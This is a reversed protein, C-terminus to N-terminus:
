SAHEEEVGRKRIGGRREIGRFVFTMTIGLSSLLFMWIYGSMYDYRMPAYASALRPRVLTLKQTAAAEELRDYFRRSQALLGPQALAGTGIGAALRRGIADDVNPVAEREQLVSSSPLLTTVEITRAETGPDIRLHGGGNGGAAGLRLSRGIADLKRRPNGVEHFLSLFPNVIRTIPSVYTDTPTEVTAVRLTLATQHSFTFPPMGAGAPGFLGPARAGAVRLLAEEARRALAMAEAESGKRSGVSLAFAYGNERKVPRLDITEPLERRLDRAMAEVVEGEPRRGVPVEVLLADATAAERLAEGEELIRGALVRDVEGRFAECRAALTADIAGIEAALRDTEARRGAADAEIRGAKGLDGKGRLVAARDELMKRSALRESQTAALKKREEDLAASAKDRCRIEWTRGRDTFTGNAQWAEATIEAPPVPAGDSPRTWATGPARLSALLEPKTVEERLVVRTMEGAPPQFLTAYGWVFLGVGNLTLLGTLRGVMGAGAAYTGLKNRRVYDYVLPVYVMMMLLGVICGSEGFVIIEVLSPHKDPLVFNVYCYYCVNISLSIFILTQYAKMRNLKDAFLTLLGIIFINIVGGVAINIGLQQKTYSWQDTYLLNGLPGLGANLASISFVLLYIPRLEPDLLGRVFTRPTIREGRLPSKQDLEKVGLTILLFLVALLLAASWYIVREGFLPVGWMFRVDDFRGLAIFYFVIGALNQFWSMMGTARGREHPPIIELKLADLTANLDSSLSYFMYVALLAWFNPMLPMLVLATVIGTWSAIVFPKRRGFRTWIRDSTFSVLPYTVLSIFSPLSLIFTLGAPNEVFKKLSFLFAAGAASGVFAFAGWPLVAFFIWRAPVEKKCTVIM